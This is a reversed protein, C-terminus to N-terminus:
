KALQKRTILAIAILFLAITSPEPIGTRNLRINSMQFSLKDDRRVRVYNSDFNSAQLGFKLSQFSSDFVGFDFDSFEFNVPTLSETKTDTSWLLFDGLYLSTLGFNGLLKMNFDISVLRSIDITWSIDASDTQRIVLNSTIALNSDPEIINFGNENITSPQTLNETILGAFVSTSTICLTLCLTSLMSTLTKM